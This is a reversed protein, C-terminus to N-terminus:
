GHDGALVSARTADHLERLLGAASHIQEHTHRGRPLVDGNVFSLTERGLGDLGLFRPAGAFGQQELEALLAASFPTTHRV